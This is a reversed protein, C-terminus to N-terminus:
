IVLGYTLNSRNLMKNLDNFDRTTRKNYMDFEPILTYNKEVRKIYDNSFMDVLSIEKSKNEQKSDALIEDLEEDIFDFRYDNVKQYNNNKMFMEDSIKHEIDESVSKYIQTLIDETDGMARLGEESFKGEVVQAAMLKTAMLSLATEQITNKYYLFYVEIDKDQSLRWSRRSAQRLTFLNYAVQYFIITTFDLLDLGTEILSPNCIIIDTGNQVKNEIWDKRETNKVSAELLAVNFGNDQLIKLLRDDLNNKKWAYYVLIKEGKAVKDKAIEILKQEKVSLESTDLIMPKVLVQKNEDIIEHMNPYDSYYNLCQTMMSKYKFNDKVSGTKIDKFQKSLDDYAEKLDLPMDVGIPIETYNPMGESMSDLSIFVSNEMLFDVFVVPSIGPVESTKKTVTPRRGHATAAVTRTNTKTVGYQQKFNELGYYNFGKSKMKDPFLRFLIYFLGSAYGNLLTGTLGIIKKGSDVLYYLSKGQLSDEGKLEHIEDVIVYDFLKNPGYKNHIYKALQYRM